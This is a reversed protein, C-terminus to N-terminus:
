NVKLGQLKVSVHGVKWIKAGKAAQMLYCETRSWLLNLSVFM